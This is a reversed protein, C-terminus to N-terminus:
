RAGGSRRGSGCHGGRRVVLASGRSAHRRIPYRAEISREPCGFEDGSMKPARGDSPTIWSTRLSLKRGSRVRRNTRLRRRTKPTLSWFRPIWTMHQRRERYKRSLYQALIMRYPSTRPSSQITIDGPADSTDAAPPSPLVGVETDPQIALVEPMAILRLMTEADAMLAILPLYEFVRASERVEPKLRSLIRAAIESPDEPPAAEDGEPSPLPAAFEVVINAYSFNKDDPLEPIVAPAGVWLAAAILLWPSAWFWAKRTWDANMRM